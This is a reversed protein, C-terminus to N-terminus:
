LGAGLTAISTVTAAATGAIHGMPQLAIANTNGIVFGLSLFSGIMNLSVIVLQAASGASTALLAVLAIAAFACWTMLAIRVIPTMGLREVIRANIFSSIGGILSVAGLIYPFLTGANLSEEYVLPAATLFSYLGGFICLQTLLAARTHPHRLTEAMQTVWTRLNLASRDEPALTEPQQLYFWLAGIGAFVAFVAFVARWGLWEAVWAGLVPAVGPVLTFIMMVISLTAAMARGEFRDRIVAMGGVRPASAGLGQLVRGAIMLEITPAMWCMVAGVAYLGLGWLILPRRGIADCIPGALVTGLALGLFFVSVVLQANEPAAPSLATGIEPLSALMMDISIAITSFLFAMLAVFRLSPKQAPAPHTM